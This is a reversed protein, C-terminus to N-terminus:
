ARGLAARAREAYPRLQRVFPEQSEGLRELLDLFREGCDLLAELLEDRPATVARAEESLLRLLKAIPLIVVHSDSSTATYVWCGDHGSSLEEVARFCLNQVAAWLEDAAEFRRGDVEIVIAGELVDQSEIAERHEDGSLEQEGIELLDGAVVLQLQFTVM